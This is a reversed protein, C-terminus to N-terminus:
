DRRCWPNLPCLFLSSVGVVVAATILIYLYILPMDQIKKNADIPHPRGSRDPRWPQDCM